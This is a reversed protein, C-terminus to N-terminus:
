LHHVYTKRGSPEVTREVIHDFRFSGTEQCDLATKIDCNLHWAIGDWISWVSILQVEHGRKQAVAERVEAEILEQAQLMTTADQSM